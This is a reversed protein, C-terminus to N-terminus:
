NQYVIIQPGFSQSPYISSDRATITTVQGSSKYVSYLKGAAVNGETQYDTMDEVLTKGYYDNSQLINGHMHGCMIVTPDRVVLNEKISTGLPSLPSPYIVGDFYNHTAFIPIQSPKSMILNNYQSVDSESLANRTYGIGIFLFDNIDATWNRKGAGVYTDFASYDSASGMLDHNGSVEYLPITTLSRAVAYNQWQAVNDGSDVLDGTIIIGSINYENKISELYSFTFNLTSPYSASLKQTDSIHVISYSYEGYFIQVPSSLTEGFWQHGDWVMQYTPTFTGATSPATVTWSFAYSEGPAVSTGPPLSVRHGGVYPFTFTYADANAGGLRIMSEESWTMTGTNKMTITVPYRQGATMTTPISTSVVQADVDATQATIVVVQSAQAGFWQHGDWVMQYTPTFTGATSPATVTWSFTYSEGPAVSTGPPLSVRHGGVNPFTFTYADANAGGLRIMSAESWTMTGTNKM